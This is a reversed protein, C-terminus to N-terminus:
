NDFLVNKLMLSLGYIQNMETNNDASEMMFQINEIHDKLKRNLSSNKIKSVSQESKSIMCLLTQLVFLKEKYSKPESLIADITETFENSILLVNGVSSNLSFNRIIELSNLKMQLNGSRVLRCLLSIQGATCESDDYQSFNEFFRLWIIVVDNWTSKRNQLQPYLLDLIQFIKASKLIMRVEIVGCYLEITKILNKLMKLNNPTHPPKVSIANARKLIDKILSIGNIEQMICKKAEKTRSLLQLFNLFCNSLISDSTVWSYVPIIAYFLSKLESGHASEGDDIPISWETLAKLYFCFKKIIQQCQQVGNKKTTESHSNGQITAVFNITKAIIASIINIQLAFAKLHDSYGLTTKIFLFASARIAHKNEDSTNLSDCTNFIHLIQIFFLDIPFVVKRIAKEYISSYFKESKSSEINQVIKSFHNSDKIKFDCEDGFDNNSNKNQIYCLNIFSNLFNLHFIIENFNNSLRFGEHLVIVLNELVIAYRLSKKLKELGEHTSMLILILNLVSYKFKNIREWKSIDDVTSHEMMCILTILHEEGINSVVDCVHERFEQNNYCAIVVNLNEQDYVFKQVFKKQQIINMVDKINNQMIKILIFGLAESCCPKKNLFSKILDTTINENTKFISSHDITNAILLAIAKQEHIQNVDIVKKYFIDDFSFNLANQFGKRFAIFNEKKHTLNAITSWLFAKNLKFGEDSLWLFIMSYEEHTLAYKNNLTTLTDILGFIKNLLNSNLRNYKEKNKKKLFSRTAHLVKSFFKNLYVEDLLVPMAKLTNNMLEFIVKTIPKSIDQNFTKDKLIIETLYDFLKEILNSSFHLKHNIKFSFNIMETLNDRTICLKVVANYLQLTLMFVHEDNNMSINFVDLFTKRGFAEAIIKDELLPLLNIYLELCEILVKKQSDGEKEAYGSFTKIVNELKEAIKSISINPLMLLAFINQITQHIQGLTKINSLQDCTSKILNEFSTDFLLKNDNDSLLLEQPVGLINKSCGSYYRDKNIKQNFVKNNDAFWVEAFTFRLYKMTTEQVDVHESKEKVAEYLLELQSVQNFPSRDWHEDFKFPFELTKFFEPLSVTTETIVIFDSFSLIFLLISALKKILFDDQCYILSQILYKLVSSENSLYIRFSSVAISWKYLISIVLRRIDSSNPFGMDLALLIYVWLNDDHSQIAFKLSNLLSNLQLLVTKIVNIDNHKYSQLVNRINQYIDKDYGINRNLLELDKVQTQPIICFNDPIIEILDNTNEDNEFLNELLKIKAMERAKQHYCFLFRTFALCLEHKGFGSHEHFIDFAFFGLKYDNKFLGSLDYSQDHAARSLKMWHNPFVIKARLLAFLILKANKHIEDNSDTYGFCLIETVIEASVPIGIVFCLDMEKLKEDQDESLKNQVTNRALQYAKTRIDTLENSLLRLIIEEAVEKLHQNTHFQNSCKNIKEFLIQILDTNRHIRITDICKLGNIIIDEDSMMEWKQFLNTISKWSNEMDYLLMKMDNDEAIIDNRNRSLLNYIFPHKKLPWDLLALDCEYEWANNSCYNTINEVDVVSVLTNIIYLEIIYNLRFIISNENNKYAERFDKMVKAIMNMLENLYIDCINRTEKIFDAVDFLILHIGNLLEQQHFMMKANFSQHFREFFNTFIQLVKNMHKKVAIYKVQYKQAEIERNKLGNIIFRIIHIIEKAYANSINPLIEILSELVNPPQIYFEPPFDSVTTQIFKLISALQEKSEVKQLKDDISNFIELDGGTLNIWCEEIEQNKNLDYNLSTASSSASSIKFENLQSLVNDLSRNREVTLFSDIEHGVNIELENEYENLLSDIKELRSASETPILLKKIKIIEKKLREISITQTIYRLFDKRSFIMILIDFVENQNTIEKFQFWRILQKTLQPLNVVCLENEALPNNRRQAEFLINNILVSKIESLAKQRTELEPNVLDELVTSDIFFQM